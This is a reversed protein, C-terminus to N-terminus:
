GWCRSSSEIWRHTVECPPECEKWPGRGSTKRGVGSSGELINNSLSIQSLSAADSATAKTCSVGQVEAELASVQPIEFAPKLFGSREWISCGLGTPKLLRAGSFKASNSHKFYKQSTMRKTSVTRLNVM